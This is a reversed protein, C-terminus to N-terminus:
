VAGCHLDIQRREPEIKRNRDKEEFACCILLCWNVESLLIELLDSRRVLLKHAKLAIVMKDSEVVGILKQPFQQSTHPRQCVLRV